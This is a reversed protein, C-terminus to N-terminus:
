KKHITHSRRKRRFLCFGPRLSRDWEQIIKATLAIPGDSSHDFSDLPVGEYETTKLHSIQAKHLRHGHTAKAPIVGDHLYGSKNNLSPAMKRNIIHEHIGLSALKKSAATTDMELETWWILPSVIPKLCSPKIMKKAVHSLSGFTMQPIALYQVSRKFTHQLIAQGIAAGGLSHGALVIQNAGISELYTITLEQAEGMTEPTATGESHGVGPNNILITNFGAEIYQKNIVPIYDEVTAGNGVAQLVWKGNNRQAPNCITWGSFKVGNKELLIPRIEYQDTCPGASRLAVQMRDNQNSIFKFLWSQAPYVVAMIIRTTM